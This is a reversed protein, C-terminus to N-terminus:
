FGSGLMLVKKVNNLSKIGTATLQSLSNSLNRFGTCWANEYHICCTKMTIWHVTVWLEDFWLSFMRYGMNFDQRVPLSNSLNRFGTCWANEYHISCTKMTIWHVTVWLEDFWLSFMRYGMNFDQRVPNRLRELTCMDVHNWLNDKSMLSNQGRMQRVRVHITIFISFSCCTAKSM